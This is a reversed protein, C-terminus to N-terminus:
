SGELVSEAWPAFEPINRLSRALRSAQDVHGAAGHAEALLFSLKVKDYEQKSRSLCSHMDDIEPVLSHADRIAWRIVRETTWDTFLQELHISPRSQPFRCSATRATRVAFRGSAQAVRSQPARQRAESFHNFHFDILACVQRAIPRDYASLEHAASNFKKTYSSPPLSSDPSEEKAMVGYLYSCIGDYYRTASTYRRCHSIFDELARTDLRGNRVLRQFEAEVGLLHDEEAIYFDLTFDTSIDSNRLSVRCVDISVQTLFTPLSEVPMERGNVVAIDVGEARVDEERLPRTIRHPESGVEIGRIYFPPRRLPHAEYRHQQLEDATACVRDCYRCPYTPPSPSFEFGDLGVPEHFEWYGTQWFGMGTSLRRIPFHQLFRLRVQHYQHSGRVAPNDTARADLTLPGRVFPRSNQARAM